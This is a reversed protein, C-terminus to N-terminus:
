WSERRLFSKLRNLLVILILNIQVNREMLDLSKEIEHVAGHLDAKPFHTNFNKLVDTQDFHVLLRDNEGATEKFVMADRFWVCLLLLLEKIKRLDRQFGNIIQDVYELQVFDNQVSKRFFNLAQQQMEDLDRSLLDLARRYSGAAMRATLGAKRKDIGNHEVLANEIEDVTLPDFKIIQCRSTITPLLLNPKSSTMILYMKEPPEEVIKLLSNAAEITMRECDFILVVRGKGEFSKYSAQRRIERIRDISISPNAWLELRQYSNEVISVVIKRTDAESLKAPAPFILHVDPHTFRAIRSCDRCTEYSCALSNECLLAKALELAIAEKGLGQDGIFLYAHSIRESSLAKEFFRKVRQQGIIKQFSM